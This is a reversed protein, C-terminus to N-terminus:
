RQRNRDWARWFLEVNNTTGNVDSLFHAPVTKALNSIWEAESVVEEAKGYTMIEYNPGFALIKDQGYKTVVAELTPRSLRPDWEIHYGDVGADALGKMLPVYNGDSVFMIKLGADKAPKWIKKYYPFIREGFWKPSMIPGKQWAIDDHSVLLKIGTRSWADVHKTTVESYRSVVEDLEEPNQFALRTVFVHGIHILLYTFLTLYLQGAVLTIDGFLQQEREYTEKYGESIEEISRTEDDRPDYSKLYHLLEDYNRFPREIVWLQTADKTRALRCGKYAIHFCDTYPFGEKLEEFSGETVRTSPTGIEKPTGLTYIMDVDLIRHQEVRWRDKPLDIGYVSKILEPGGVPGMLLNKDVPRLSIAQLARQLSLLLRINMLCVIRLIKTCVHDFVYPIEMDPVGNEGMFGIARTMEHFEPGEVSKIWKDYYAKFIM